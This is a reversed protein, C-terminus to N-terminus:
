SWCPESWPRLDGPRDLDAREALLETALGAREAVALSAALVEAGGWPIAQQDGALLRRQLPLLGGGALRLGILWYGGDRAPGFVLPVRALAQFAADLDAASLEPLDSGILVLRGVGARQASLLQRALRLGLGGPGQLLVREAGLQGGWRRAARAGLGSVALVLERGSDAAGNSAAAVALTHRALRAQIGAARV